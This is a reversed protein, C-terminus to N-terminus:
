QVSLPIDGWRGYVEQDPVVAIRLGGLPSLSDALVLGASLLLVVLMVARTM